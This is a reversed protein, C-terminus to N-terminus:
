LKAEGQSGSQQAQEVWLNIKQQEIKNGFEPTGPESFPYLAQRQAVAATATIYPEWLYIVAWDSRQRVKRRVSEELHKPHKYYHSTFCKWAQRYSFTAVM